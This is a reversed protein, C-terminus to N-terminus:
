HCTKKEKCGCDQCQCDQTKGKSCNEKCEKSCECKESAHAHGHNSAFAGPLSFSLIMTLLAMKKM